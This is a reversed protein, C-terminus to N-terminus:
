IMGAKYSNRWEILNGLVARQETGAVLGIESLARKPCGIRNRVLTAKYRPAYNIPQFDALHYKVMSHVMCWNISEYNHLAINRFGVAKKLRSALELNLVGAQAPLDFTQGMPGSPPVEMGAIL